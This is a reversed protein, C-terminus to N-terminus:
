ICSSVKARHRGLYLCGGGGDYGSLFFREGLGPEDGGLEGVFALDEGDNGVFDFLGAAVDVGAVDDAMVTGDDDEGDVLRLIGASGSIM